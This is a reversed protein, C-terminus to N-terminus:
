CHTPFCSFCTPFEQEPDNQFTGRWVTKSGGITTDFDGGTKFPSSSHVFSVHGSMRLHHKTINKEMTRSRNNHNNTNNNNGSGKRPIPCPRLGHLGLLRAVGWLRCWLDYFSVSNGFLSRCTSDTALCHLILHSTDHPSHGCASCSPNEIRGIRSLYSSLRLSHGNCCLRSLVCCAHRLLM